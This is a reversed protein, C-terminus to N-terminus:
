GGSVPALFEVRETAQLVYDDGVLLDNVCARVRKDLIADAAKPHDAALRGRLELITCSTAADDHLERGILDALRGYFLVQM